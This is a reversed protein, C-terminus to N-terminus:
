TGTNDLDYSNFFNDASQDSLARQKNIYPKAKIPQTIEVGTMYRRIAEKIYGEGCGFIACFGQKRLYEHYQYQRWLHESAQLTIGDAFFVSKLKTEIYLSAYLGNNHLIHMDPYGRGEFTESGSQQSQFQEKLYSPTARGSIVDTRFHTTPYNKKIWKVIHAQLQDETAFYLNQDKTLM